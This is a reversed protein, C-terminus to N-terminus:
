DYSYRDYVALPRLRLPRVRSYYNYGYRDYVALLRLRLPWVRSNTTATLPLIQRRRDPLVEGYRRREGLRAGDVLRRRLRSPEAPAQHLLCAGVRRPGGAAAHGAHRALGRQGDDRDGAWREGVGDQPRAVDLRRLCPAVDPPPVGVRAVGPALHPPPPCSTVDPPPVSPRCQPRPPPPPPPPCPAVDPPPVGVRAVSSALHPPPPCSTVDPPPVGPRCQPRLPPAPASLTDRWLAPCM